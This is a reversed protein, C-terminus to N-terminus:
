ALKSMELTPYVAHTASTEVQGGGAMITARALREPRLWIAQIGMLAFLMVFTITLKRPFRLIFLSLALQMAFLWGATAM